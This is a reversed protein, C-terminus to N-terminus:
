STSNTYWRNYGIILKIKEKLLRVFKLYVRKYLGVRKKQIEYYVIPTGGFQRVFNEVGEMMSGMFDFSKSVTSAFKIGEWALLSFAGSKRYKPDTGAFMGYCRNKDYVMFNGSYVQNDEGVAYILKGSNYEKCIRYINRILDKSWPNKMKQRSFTKDLLTLLIEIDDITKITIKNKAIRINNKMSKSFRNYIADLDTLDTLRYSIHPIIQFQNWYLPLFYDVNSDLSININKNAPLQELLLNTVRKRKNYHTDSELYKESIWFGLTQTMKPMCINKSREVVPWRAIVEGEEEILIERWENPAVTDLWWPQEFVSNVYKSTTM